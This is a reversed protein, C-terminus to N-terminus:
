MFGLQRKRDFYKKFLYTKLATKFSTLKTCSRVTFPLRNWLNPGAVSFTQNGYTPVEPTKEMLLGNTSSRLCRAPDYDQLLESLYIPALDNRCKFVSVLIDYDIRCQVPLWHLKYLTPTINDFKQGGMILRASANQVLQLKELRTSTCGVLLGNCYDLNSTVTAHVLTKASDVDLFRRIKGISHIQAWCKRATESIEREMTMKSDLYCGLDKVCTAPIIQSGGLCLSPTPFPNRLFKSQFYIIETKEENLKLWNEAMWKKIDYVCNQLSIIASHIDQRSALVLYLQSDDAYVHYDMGHIRIIVGIPKGYM